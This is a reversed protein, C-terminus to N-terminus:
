LKAEVLKFKDFAGPALELGTTQAFIDWCFSRVLGVRGGADPRRLTVLVNKGNKTRKLWCGREDGSCRVLEWRGGGLGMRRAQAPSVLIYKTQSHTVSISGDGINEASFM